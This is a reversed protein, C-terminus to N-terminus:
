WQAMAPGGPKIGPWACPTLPDPTPWLTAWIQDRTWSSWMGCPLWFLSFFFVFFVEHTWVTVEKEFDPTLIIWWTERVRTQTHEGLSFGPEWPCTSSLPPDGLARKSKGFCKRSLWGLVKVMLIVSSLTLNKRCANEANNVPISCDAKDSFIAAKYKRTEKM